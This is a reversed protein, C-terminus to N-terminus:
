VIMRQYLWISLEFLVVMLTLLFLIWLFTLFGKHRETWKM